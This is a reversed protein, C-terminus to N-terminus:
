GSPFIRGDCECSQFKAALFIICFSVAASAAAAERGHGKKVAGPVQVSGPKVTFWRKKYPHIYHTSRYLIFDIDTFGGNM